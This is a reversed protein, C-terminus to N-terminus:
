TIRRWGKNWHTSPPPATVYLCMCLCLSRCVRLSLLRIIAYTDVLGPCLVNVRIGETVLLPRLGEGIARVAMKTAHYCVSSSLPTYSAVSAMLAIQGVGRARMLSIAPLVTNWVGQVNIDFMPKAVASLEKTNHVHVLNSASVGANAIILDLPTHTHAALVAAAMGSQDQVDVTFTLVKAGKAECEAKVAKLRAENRATLFLTIGPAAYDTAMAAGIGGNGGTIFISTHERPPGRAKHELYYLIPSLLLSAGDVLLKVLLALAFWGYEFLMM